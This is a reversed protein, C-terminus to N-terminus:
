RVSFYLWQVMLMGLYLRFSKMALSLQHRHVFANVGILFYTIYFCVTLSVNYVANLRSVSKVNLPIGGMRHLFLLVKFRSEILGKNYSNHDNAEYESHEM